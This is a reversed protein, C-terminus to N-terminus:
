YAEIKEIINPYKEFLARVEKVYWAKCYMTSERTENSYVIITPFEYDVGCKLGYAYQFFVQEKNQIFEVWEPIEKKMEKLVSRNEKSDKKFATYLRYLEDLERFDDFGTIIVKHEKNDQTMVTVIQGLRFNRGLIKQTIKSIIPNKDGTLQSLTLKLQDKKLNKVRLHIAEVDM